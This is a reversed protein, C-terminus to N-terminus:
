QLGPATQSLQIVTLKDMEVFRLLVANRECSVQMVLPRVAIVTRWQASRMHASKSGYSSV